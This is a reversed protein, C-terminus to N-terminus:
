LWVIQGGMTNAGQPLLGAPFRSTAAEVAVATGGDGRIPGGDDTHKEIDQQQNKPFGSGGPPM